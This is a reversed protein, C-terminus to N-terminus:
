KRMRDLISSFLELFEAVNQYITINDANLVVRMEGLIVKIDIDISKLHEETMNEQLFELSISINNHVLQYTKSGSRVLGCFLQDLNRLFMISETVDLPRVKKSFNESGNQLYIRAEQIRNQIQEYSYFEFIGFINEIKTMIIVNFPLSDKLGPTRAGPIKENALSM